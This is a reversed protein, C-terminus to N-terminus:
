MHTVSDGGGEWVVSVLVVSVMRTSVLSAVKDFAVTSPSLILVAKGKAKVPSLHSNWTDLCHQGQSVCLLSGALARGVGM